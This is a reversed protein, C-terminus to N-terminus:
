ERRMGLRGRSIHTAESSKHLHNRRYEGVQGTVVITGHNQHRREPLGVGLRPGNKTTTSESPIFVADEFNEAMKTHITIPNGHFSEKASFASHKVAGVGLGTRMGVILKLCDMGSAGKSAATFRASTEVPPRV